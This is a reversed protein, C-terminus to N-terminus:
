DRNPYWSSKVELMTVNTVRGQVQMFVPIGIIKPLKNHETSMYRHTM